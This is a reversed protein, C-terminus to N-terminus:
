KAVNEYELGTKKFCPQCYGNVLADFKQCDICQGTYYGNQLYHNSNSSISDWSLKNIKLEKGEFLIRIHDQFIQYKFGKTERWDPKQEEANYHENKNDTIM